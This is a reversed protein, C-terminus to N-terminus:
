WRSGPGARDPMRLTLSRLVPRVGEPGAASPQMASATSMGYLYTKARKWVLKAGTAFPMASRSAACSFECILDMGVKKVSKM